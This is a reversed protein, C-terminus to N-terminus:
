NCNICKWEHFHMQLAHFPWDGVRGIRSSKPKLWNSVATLSKFYYHFTCVDLKKLSKTMAPLKMRQIQIHRRSFPAMKAWGWHTLLWYHLLYKWTTVDVHPFPFRYGTIATIPTYPYPLTPQTHCDQCQASHVRMQDIPVCCGGSYVSVCDGQVVCVFPGRFFLRMGCHM